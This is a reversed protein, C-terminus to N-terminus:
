NLTKLYEQWSANIEKISGFAYTFETHFAARSRWGTRTNYVASMYKRLGDIHKESLFKYFVAAQAYIDKRMSASEPMRSILIFENLPILRDDRYMQLLRQQRIDTDSSANAWNEFNSALGESVWVPYMVKQRQLGTNFALQHAAEHMIRVIESDSNDVSPLIYAAAVAPQALPKREMKWNQMNNPKVIAVANTAASYYSTLWPLNMNDNEMAHSSFARTDAFCYWTLKEGPENLVFGNDTYVSNFHEYAFELFGAIDFAQNSNFDHIIKFHSTEIVSLNRSDPTKAHAKAFVFLSLIIFLINRTYTRM